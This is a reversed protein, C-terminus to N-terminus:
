WVLDDQMAKLVAKKVELNKKIANRLLRRYRDAIRGIAAQEKEKKLVRKLETVAWKGKAGRGKEVEDIVFKLKEFGEKLLERTKRTNVVGMPKSLIESDRQIHNTLAAIAGQVDAKSIGQAAPM